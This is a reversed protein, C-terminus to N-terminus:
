LDDVPKPDVERESAKDDAYDKLEEFNAELYDHVALLHEEYDIDQMLKKEDQLAGIVTGPLDTKFDPHIDEYKNVQHLEDGLLDIAAAFVIDSHTDLTDSAPWGEGEHTSSFPALGARHHAKDFDLDDHENEKRIAKVVKNYYTENILNQDKDKM